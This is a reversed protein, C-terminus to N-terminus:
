SLKYVAATLAPSLEATLLQEELPALGMKQGGHTGACVQCICLCADMFLILSAEAGM